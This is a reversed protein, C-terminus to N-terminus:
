SYIIIRDPGSIEELDETYMRPMVKLKTKSKVFSELAGMSRFFNKRRYCVKLKRRFEYTEPTLKSKITYDKREKKLERFIDLDIFEKKTRENIVTYIPGYLDLIAHDLSDIREGRLANTSIFSIM